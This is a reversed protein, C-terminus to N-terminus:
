ERRRQNEGGRTREERQERRRENEGGRM